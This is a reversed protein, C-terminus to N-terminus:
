STADSSEKAKVQAVRQFSLGMITGVDRVTLGSDILRTVTFDQAEALRRHMDGVENSLALYHELVERWEDPLEHVVEVEFTEPDEDTMLAIVERANSEVQDLRKAQSHAGKVGDITIAWWKGSRIARATYHKM